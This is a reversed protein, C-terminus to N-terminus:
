TSLDDEPIRRRRMTGYTGARVFVNAASLLSSRTAAASCISKDFKNGDRDVSSRAGGYDRYISTAFVSAVEIEEEGDKLADEEDITHM